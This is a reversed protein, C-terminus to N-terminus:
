GVTGVNSEQVLHMSLEPMISTQLVSQWRTEQTHIRTHGWLQFYRLTSKSAALTM